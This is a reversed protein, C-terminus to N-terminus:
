NMPKFDYVVGGDVRLRTKGQFKAGTLAAWKGTGAIITLAITGDPQFVGNVLSIDGDPDHAQCVGIGGNPRQQGTAFVQFYNCNVKMAEPFGEPPNEYMWIDSPTVQVHTGSTGEITKLDTRVGTGSGSLASHGGAFAVFPVLSLLITTIVRKM